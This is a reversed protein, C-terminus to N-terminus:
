DRSYIARVLMEDKLPMLEPRQKVLLGTAIDQAAVIKHEFDALRVGTIREFESDTTIDKIALLYGMAYNAHLVRIVESEDQLSAVVYRASQRYLTRVAQDSLSGNKTRWVLLVIALGILFLWGKDM